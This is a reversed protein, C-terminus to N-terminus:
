VRERCSARGIQNDNGEYFRLLDVLHRQSKAIMENDTKVVTISYDKIGANQAAGYICAKINDSYVPEQKPIASSVDGSSEQGIPITIKDNKKSRIVEKTSHTQEVSKTNVRNVM